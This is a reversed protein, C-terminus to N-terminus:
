VRRLIYWCVFCNIYLFFFFFTVLPELAAHYNMCLPPRFSSSMAFEPHHPIAHPSSTLARTTKSLPAINLIGQHRCFFAVQISQIAEGENTDGLKTWPVRRSVPSVGGIRGAGRWGGVAVRWVGSPPTAPMVPNLFFFVFLSTWVDRCNVTVWTWRWARTHRPKEDFKLLCQRHRFCKPFPSQFSLIWIHLLHPNKGTSFPWIADSSGPFRPWM